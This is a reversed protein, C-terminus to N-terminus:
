SERNPFNEFIELLHSQNFLHVCEELLHIELVLFYPNIMWGAGPRPRPTRFRGFAVATVTAAPPLVVAVGAASTAPANVRYRGVPARSACVSLALAATTYVAPAPVLSFRTRSRGCRCCHGSCM